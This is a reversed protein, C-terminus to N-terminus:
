IEGPRQHSGYHHAQPRTKGRARANVSSQLEYGKGHKQQDQEGDDGNRVVQLGCLVWSFCIAKHAAIM